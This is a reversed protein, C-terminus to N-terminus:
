LDLRRKCNEDEIKVGTLQVDVVNIFFSSVAAVFSERGYFRTASKALARFYILLNNGQM